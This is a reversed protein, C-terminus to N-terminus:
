RMREGLRTWVNTNTCWEVHGDVFLISGGSGGHNRPPCYMMVTDTSSITSYGHALVYDTWQNVRSLSGPSHRTLPCVFVAPDQVYNALAGMDPPANTHDLTYMSVAVGLQRLNGVCMTRRAREVSIGCSTPCLGILVAVIVALVVVLM